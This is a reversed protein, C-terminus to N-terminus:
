RKKWSLRWFYVAGLLGFVGTLVMGITEVVLLPFRPEQLLVSGLAWVHVLLWVSIGSLAALLIGLSVGVRNVRKVVTPIEEAFSYQPL